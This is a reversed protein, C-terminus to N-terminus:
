RDGKILVKCNIPTESKIIISDNALLKWTPINNEYGNEDEQDGEDALSSILMSDVYANQCKHTAFPIVLKYYSITQQWDETTYTLWEFPKLIAEITYNTNDVNVTINNNDVGTYKHSVEVVEGLDSDISDDVDLLSEIQSEADLISDLEDENNLCNMDAM